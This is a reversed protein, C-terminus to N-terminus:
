SALLRADAPVLDGASLQVLDGPVVERRPIEQWAGDRLVTARSAVQSRLREAAVQSRYTQVFNIAVSVLVIAVVITADTQQGLLISAFAAMLLILVLPNALFGFLERVASWRHAPVPENPGYQALRRRAEASTLGDLANEQM